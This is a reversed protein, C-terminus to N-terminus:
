LIIGNNKKFCEFNAKTIRWSIGKIKFLGFPILESKLRYWQHVEQIQLIKCIDEKTLLNGDSTIEKSIEKEVIKTM